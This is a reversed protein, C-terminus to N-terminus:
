GLKCPDYWILVELEVNEYEGGNFSTKKSV